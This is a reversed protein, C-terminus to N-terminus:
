ASGLGIKLALCGAFGSGDLAPLALALTLEGAATASPALECRSPGALPRAGHVGLQLQPCAPNARNAAQISERLGALPSRTAPM